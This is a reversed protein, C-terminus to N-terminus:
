GAPPHIIRPSSKIENQHPVKKFMFARRMVITKKAEVVAQSANASGGTAAEAIGFGIGTVGVAVGIGQGGNDTVYILSSAVWCAVTKRHVPGPLLTGNLEGPLTM